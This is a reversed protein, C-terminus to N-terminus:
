YARKLLFNPLMSLYERYPEQDLFSLERDFYDVAQKAFKEMLKQGYDLSECDKMKEIVWKVEAVTKQERTKQLIKLLKNKDTGKTTRLLHALMITRKGEYIDNGTQKKLGAFDSTLDLLDDRIQFCYGLYKGFIYIKDLQDKSAGGLIAGLRMPGAITYYGTKSELILLIDEDSLDTKNEQTWKIEITQGLVTRNLMQSFEEIVEFTKDEDIIKRNDILLKWMTVHLSDGANIALEKGYIRHLAKGGRRQLSDDEADDHVLIWEESVQMAAATQLAKKSPVGMAQATIMVLSPRVYKGMREPYVRIMKQHFDTLYKYKDAVEGVGEFKLGSDINLDIIPWIQKKYGELIDTFNIIQKM